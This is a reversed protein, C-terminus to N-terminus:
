FSLTQATSDVAGTTLRAGSVTIVSGGDVGEAITTANGYVSYTLSKITVTGVSSTASVQSSVLASASANITTVLNAASDTANSGKNWQNGTAGSNVCTLTVGNILITDNATAVASFVISGTAAVANGRISIAISPSNTTDYASESGGIIRELYNVVRQAIQRGGGATEFTTSLYTKPRATIVTLILTSDQVSM